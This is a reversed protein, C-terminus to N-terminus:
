IILFLIVKPDANPDALMHCGMSDVPADVDKRMEQILQLHEFIKKLLPFSDTSVSEEIDVITEVKNPEYKIIKCSSSAENKNFDQILEENDEDKSRKM